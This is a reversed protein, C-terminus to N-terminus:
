TTFNVSDLVAAYPTHTGSNIVWDWDEETQMYHVVGVNGGQPAACYFLCVWVKINLNEKTNSNYYHCVFLSLKLNQKCYSFESAYAGSIKKKKHM